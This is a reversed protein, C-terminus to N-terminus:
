RLPKEKGATQDAECREQLTISVAFSISLGDMNPVLRGTCKKASIVFAHRASVTRKCSRRSGNLSELPLKYNLTTKARALGVEIAGRDSSLFLREFGISRYAVTQWSNVYWRYFCLISRFQLLVLKTDIPIGCYSAFFNM